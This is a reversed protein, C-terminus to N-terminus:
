KVEEYARATRMLKGPVAFYIFSCLKKTNYKGDYMPQSKNLM